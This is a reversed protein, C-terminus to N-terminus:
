GLSGDGRVVLTADHYSWLTAGSGWQTTYLFVGCGARRMVLAADIVAESYADRKIADEHMYIYNASKDVRFIDTIHLKEEIM